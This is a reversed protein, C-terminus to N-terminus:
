RTTAAAIVEASPCYFDPEPFTALPGPSHDPRLAGATPRAVVPPPSKIQEPRTQQDPLM